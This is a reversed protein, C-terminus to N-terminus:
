DEEKESKLSHRLYPILLLLLLGFGLIGYAAALEFNFQGFGTQFIITPFIHTASLPGGKTTVWIMDFYNFTFIATLLLTLVMVPRLSPIIVSIVIRPFRAGDMTAAEIQSRDVNQLGALYILFAFPFGKWIAAVIVAALATNPDALLQTAGLEEGFLRELVSSILGLQPDYMFRWLIAAVVGPLVWPLVIIARLFGSLRWRPNFVLALLFGMLNQGLVVFFTWFFSNLLLKPFMDSSVIEEYNALGVFEPDAGFGSPAATLSQWTAQALPWYVLGVVGIFAPVLFVLAGLTARRKYSGLLPARKAYDNKKLTQM